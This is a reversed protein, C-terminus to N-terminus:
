RQHNSDDRESYVKGEKEWEVPTCCLGEHRLCMGWNDGPLM